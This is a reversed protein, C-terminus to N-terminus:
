RDVSQRYFSFLVGIIFGLTVGMDIGIWDDVAGKIIGAIIFLVTCVCINQFTKM